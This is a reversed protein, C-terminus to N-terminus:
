LPSHELHMPPRAPPIRASDCPARRRHQQMPWPQDAESGAGALTGLQQDLAVKDVCLSSSQHLNNSGVRSGRAAAVLGARARACERAGLGGQIMV